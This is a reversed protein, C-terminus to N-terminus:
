VDLNKVDLAHKEIYEKRRKVDKGALISFISDAKIADDIKVKLLTRTSPNMTTESLEDGNMEGLGKYRQIEIDRKRIEKINLLVESLSKIGIKNDGSILRFRETGNKGIYDDISFGIKELTNIINEINKSDHFRYVRISNEIEQKEPVVDDEEIIELNGKVDQQQSSIFANLQEDNYFFGIKDKDMDFRRVLCAM